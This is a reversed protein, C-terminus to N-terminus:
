SKPAEYSAPARVQFVRVLPEGSQSDRADLLFTMQGAWAAYSEVAASEIRDGDRSRM